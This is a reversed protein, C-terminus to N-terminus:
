WRLLRPGLWAGLLSSSAIGLSYWIAVFSPATEDCILAYGMAGLAGACLGAAAGAWRLQTPALGRVAWFCAAMAPLSLLLVNRPCTVWSHGMLQPMRQAPEALLWDAIGLLAMTAVTLLLLRRPLVHSAAPRALRATLWAAGAALAASYGWKLWWMPDTLVQLPVMAQAMLALVTGATLGVVAAPALRRWAVARPAPGAQVSLLQILDDTRM